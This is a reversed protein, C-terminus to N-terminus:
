TMVSALQAMTVPKILFHELGVEQVRKRTEDDANGSLAILKTRRANPSNSQRLKEVFEFGSLKPMALDLIIVDFSEKTATELADLGDGVVTVKNGLQTLMEKLVRQSLINDDAVLIELNQRM